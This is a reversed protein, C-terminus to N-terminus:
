KSKAPVTPRVMVRYLTRLLSIVGVAVPIVSVLLISVTEASANKFGFKLLVDGVLKIFAPHLGVGPIYHYFLVLYLSVGMGILIVDIVIELLVNIPDIRKKRTGAM